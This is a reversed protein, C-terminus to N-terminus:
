RRGKATIIWWGVGGVVVVVLGFKVFGLLWGLLFQVGTIAGFVALAGIVVIAPFPLKERTPHSDRREIAM